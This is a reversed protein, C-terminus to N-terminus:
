SRPPVRRWLRSAGSGTGCGGEMPCGGCSTECHTDVQRLLGIAELNVLMAEVMEVSLNLRAALKAPALTGGKRLETLLQELM